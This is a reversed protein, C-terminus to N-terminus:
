RARYLGLGVWAAVPWLGVLVYMGMALKAGTTQPMRGTLQSAAWLSVGLFLLGPVLIVVVAMIQISWAVWGVMSPDLHVWAPVTAAALGSAVLCLLGGAWLARRAHRYVRDPTEM